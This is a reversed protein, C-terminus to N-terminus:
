ARKGTMIQIITEDTASMGESALTGINRITNEVGKKVIGEGDPFENGRRQMQMGLLGAEIASAIKAACSAKAGDCVMGSNIAAANVITHAIEDFRGGYLYTIGAAAAAELGKLGGTNPVFVSKVNKIINASAIVRVKDPMEGLTKRALAACYAVAVPETCGTSPILEKKLISIYKGYLFNDM